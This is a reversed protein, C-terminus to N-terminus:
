EQNKLLSIQQKLLTFIEEKVLSEKELWTWSRRFLNIDIRDIVKHIEASLRDLYEVKETIKTKSGTKADFLVIVAIAGALIHIPLLTQMM